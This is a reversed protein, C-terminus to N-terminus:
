EMIFGSGMDTINNRGFNICSTGEGNRSTTSHSSAVIYSIRKMSEFTKNNYM